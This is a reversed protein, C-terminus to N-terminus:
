AAADRVYKCMLMDSVNGFVWAWTHTCIRKHAHMCKCTHMVSFQSTISLHKFIIDTFKLSTYIRFSLFNLCSYASYAHHSIFISHFPTTLCLNILVSLSQYAPSPTFSLMPFIYTYAHTWDIILLTHCKASEIQCAALGLLMSYLLPALYLLQLTTSASLPKLM